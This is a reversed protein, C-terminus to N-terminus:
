ISGSWPSFRFGRYTGQGPISGAFKQHIPHRELWSVLQVVQGPSSMRNEESRKSNWIFLQSSKTHPARCIGGDSPNLQSEEVRRFHHRNKPCLTPDTWKWQVSCSDLIYGWAKACFVQCSEERQSWASSKRKRSIVSLVELNHAPPIFTNEESSPSLNCGGAVPGSNRGSLFGAATEMSQLWPVPKGALLRPWSVSLGM